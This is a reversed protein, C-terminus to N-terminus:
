YYSEEDAEIIVGGNEKNGAGVGIYYNGSSYKQNGNNNSQANNNGSDYDNLSKNVASLNIDYSYEV